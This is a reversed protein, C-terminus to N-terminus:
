RARSRQRLLLTCLCLAYGTVLAGSHIALGSVVAQVLGDDHHAIAEPSVAGVLGFVAVMMLPPLVGVTFFGEPRVAVALGLCLVIFCLDFFQSLEGVLALDVIVVSLAVAVGLVVVQRGPERGDTWVSSVDTV